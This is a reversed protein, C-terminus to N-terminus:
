PKVPRQSLIKGAIAEPVNQQQLYETARQHQIHGPTLESLLLKVVKRLYFVLYKWRPVSPRDRYISNVMHQVNQPSKLNTLQQFVQRKASWDPSLYWQLWLPMHRQVDAVQFDTTAQLNSSLRIQYGKTRARCIYEYDGGYHRFREVNPLGIEKVLLAPFVAINGNLTHVKLTPETAFQAMSNIPRSNLVGGYVVWDPHSQARVIGGTIVKQGSNAQCVKLLQLLFDDALTIDDNLWVIYDSALQEVAYQMGQAIAGTWWLHGDGALLHVQPFEAKILDPTGDTSADDVVVIQLPMAQQQSQESLQRLIALTHHRRNRVPLVTAMTPMSSQTPESPQPSNELLM